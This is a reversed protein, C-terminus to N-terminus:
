NEYTVTLNINSDAEGANATIGYRPTINFISNFESTSELLNYGYGVYIRPTLFTGVSLVSAQGGAAKGTLLYSQITSPDELQPRSFLALTPQTAPGTLLVGAATVDRDNEIWRVARVNIEPETAPTAAFILQGTEIELDQGFRRFTGDLVDIRGEAIPIVDVQGPLNTFTVMGALQSKFGLADVNIQDGFIVRVHSDIVFPAAAPEAADPEAGDRNIVVVDPSPALVEGPVDVAADPADASRLQLQPTIAAEPIVLDGRVRLTENEWAIELDPSLLARADPTSYVEMRDGEIDLAIAGALLDAEGRIAVRGEGSRLGGRIDLKGPEDPKSAASLEIERLEIGALPVDAQGDLLAFEGLVKPQELTGALQLNADLRGSTAELEPVWTAISDLRNLSARARGELPQMDAPPVTTFQPLLVEASVQGEEPAAFEFNATLGDPNVTLRLEGGGHALLEEEEGVPVRFAGPTIRIAADTTLRGDAAVEAQAEGQLSGTMTPVFMTVPLDQLSAAFRSEAGVSLEAELCIEGVSEDRGLCSQDLAIVEDSLTLPAPARLSWTGVDNTALLLQSLSGSWTELQADLGGDLGLVLREGELGTELSLEHRSISGHVGFSLADVLPEEGDQVNWLELEIALPAEPDLEAAVAGEIAAVNLADLALAAGTFTATVRPSEQSGTIEGAANVQGRLDPVLAAPNAAEVEWDLALADPAVLGSARVTNGRSSLMISDLTVTEGTLRAIVSAELPRDMLTGRLEKLRVEADILGEADLEGATELEFFLEGPVDPAIASPDLREGRVELAWRPMPDWSVPGSARLEGGLLRGRAEALTFMTPDGRGRLEWTSPPIEVGAVDTSLTLDYAVPRGVLTLHGGRSRLISEAGVLPWQLGQWALTLDATPAEADLDELVATLELALPTDTLALTLQELELVAGRQEGRVRGELSLTPPLEPALADVGETRIWYGLDFGIDTGWALAGDLSVKGRLPVDPAATADSGAPASVIWDWAADLELPMESRLATNGSLAIGGEPLRLAFRELSIADGEVAVDLDLAEVLQTSAGEQSVSLDRIRVGSLQLDVPSRLTTPDFPETPAPEDTPALLLTGSAADLQTISVKRHLLATPQWDVELSDLDLDLGPMSVRLGRVTLPGLLRGELIEWSVEEGVWDRAQEALFRTGTQSGILGLAAGLLLLLLLLLGLFLGGVYKLLRRRSPALTRSGASVSPDTTPKGPSHNRM